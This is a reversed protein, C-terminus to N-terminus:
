NPYQKSAQYLSMMIGASDAFRIINIDLDPAWKNKRNGNTVYILLMPSICIKFLLATFKVKRLFINERERQTDRVSVLARLFFCFFRQLNNWRDKLTFPSFIYFFCFFLLSLFLIFCAHSTTTELMLGLTTVNHIVVSLETQIDTGKVSHLACRDKYLSTTTQHIVACFLRFFRKAIM